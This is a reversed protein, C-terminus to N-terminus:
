LLEKLAQEISSKRRQLKDLVFDQQQPTEALWDAVINRTLHTVDDATGQQLRDRIREITEESVEAKHAEEQPLYKQRLQALWDQEDM